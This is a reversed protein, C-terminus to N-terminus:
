LGDFQRRPDKLQLDILVRAISAATSFEALWYFLTPADKELWDFILVYVMQNRHQFGSRETLSHSSM